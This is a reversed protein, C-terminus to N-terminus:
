LGYVRTQVWSSGIYTKNNFVKKVFEFLTVCIKYAPVKALFSLVRRGLFIFFNFIKLNLMIIFTLFVKKRQM